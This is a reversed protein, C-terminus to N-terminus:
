TQSTSGPFRGCLRGNEVARDRRQFCQGSVAHFQNCWCVAYMRAEPGPPGPDPGCSAQKPLGGHMVLGVPSMVAFDLRQTAWVLTEIDSVGFRIRSVARLAPTGIITTGNPYVRRGASSSPPSPRDSM